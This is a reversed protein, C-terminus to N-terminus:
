GAEPVLPSVGYVMVPDTRGKVPISRLQQFPFQSRVTVYTYESVVIDTGLEKSATELRSAINVADGIATYEMRQHSGINGVIATGTNIGIGARLEVAHSLKWRERLAGLAARMDLTARVAHEEQFEDDMPAGFVAMFGDGLFKNIAGGHKFIAEIMKEFFENLLAVVEEPKLSEAITSFGRVDAFLLTIKRRDGKLEPMQGSKLIKEAMDSSVYRVLTGKLNERERLGAIMTNMAAAVEGFEDGRPLKVETTFDGAGVAEAGRRLVTLPESIRQSIVAAM